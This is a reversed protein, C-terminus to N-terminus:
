PPTSDAAPSLRGDSGRSAPEARPIERKARRTLFVFIALAAIGTGGMVAVMSTLTPHGSPTLGAAAALSGGLGFQLSGVLASATGAVAPPQSTIAMAGANPLVFGAGFMMLALATLVVPLTALHALGLVGLAGTPILAAVLGALLRRQPDVRGILAANVQTGAILVVTNAAFAFSFGQPSLGFQHQSVSSFASIYTFMMAFGFAMTLAPALFAPDAVMRRLTGALTRVTLPGRVQAPLSEPLGFYVAAFATVGLGALVGFGLRWPGVTLLGAGAIPGLMPALGQVLLIRAFMLAAADGDYLDRVVARAIV